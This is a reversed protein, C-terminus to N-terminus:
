LFEDESLRGKKVNCSPCCVRLNDLAHRGGRALPVAHDFSLVLSLTARCYHCLPHERALQVLDEVQYSLGLGVLAAKRRQAGFARSCRTRLAKEATLPLTPTSM